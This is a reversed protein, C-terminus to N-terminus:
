AAGQRQIGGGALIGLVRLAPETAPRDTRHVTVSWGRKLCAEAIARGHQVFRERYMAGWARADGVRLDARGEVDELVAEGDFPFTEEVPDVIRIVHGKAGRAAISAIRRAFDEAPVLADTILIIEAQPPLADGPPLDADQGAKDLLLTEALREAIRRSARPPMLGMLGVREGAEVLADSLALGLVLAREAKSAAALSSIYAMSPSRDIWLHVSHAAEWERERVYLRDDRASRRWDVRQAAEGPAFARFQWFAEGPGARRRGHVGSVAALVRRAELMLHPLRAALELASAQVPHGPQRGTEDLVRVKAM